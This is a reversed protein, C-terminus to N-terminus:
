PRVPSTRRPRRRRQDARRDGDGAADEALSTSDSHPVPADNVETVTISVTASDSLPDAAGNTTGNDTVTYGFSDPGYYNAAPTYLIKGADAGSSIITATGHAPAGVVTITLTQTSENAPGTSDNGRPDIVVSGDEAVNRADNVATPKDNVETVTVNVLASDSKFDNAGNTTGNDTVTYGFSDPGDYNANPTYLIKGADIGSAIITATGHGPTGVTTVTLTQASENMPGVSDNGRADIVVSDDEAVTATDNVATPSDNVEIVTVNVTATDSRPDAVGNTTGNDTVTYGFSDPGNYNANPTYLIKGAEPGGVIISATGHAPTGVATVTLTQTSENAPGTSDNGRPDIVVPNDEAVNRADDFATPKDNVETVTISVTASDSKPDAAGNTTGNDTVTYTFSDSGNFNADPTYSVGTPTFTVTGHAGQTVATVTLTQGSENPPGADDNTLVDIATAGADEALTQSDNRAIPADNVETVTISVTTTSSKPDAAGNTTGNDTV